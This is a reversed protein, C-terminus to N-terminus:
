NRIEGSFGPIAVQQGGAEVLVDFLAARHNTLDWDLRVEAPGNSFQAPGRVWVIGVPGIPWTVNSAPTFKNWAGFRERLEACDRLWRPRTEHTKFYPSADDYLQECSGSNYIEQFHQAAAVALSKQQATDNCGTLFTALALLTLPRAIRGTGIPHDHRRAM